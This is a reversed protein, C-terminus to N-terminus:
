YGMSKILMLIEQGRQGGWAQAARATILASQKALDYKGLHHLAQTRAYLLSPNSPERALFRQSQVFLEQWLASPPKQERAILTSNAPTNRVALVTNDGVYIIKWGNSWPLALSLMVTDSTAEAVVPVVLANVSYKELAAEWGPGANIITHTDSLVAPSLSRGDVFAKDMYGKFVIYGGWHVPAFFPGSVSARRAYQFAEDPYENNVWSAPVSPKLMSLARQQSLNVTLGIALIASLAASAIALKRALGRSDHASAIAWIAAAACIYVVFMVTRVYLFGMACLAACMGAFPLDVHGQRLSLAVLAVLAVLSFGVLFYFTPDGFYQLLFWPSRYEIVEQVVYMGSNQANGASRALDMAVTRTWGLFTDAASPNILSIAVGGAAAAMCKYSPAPGPIARMRGPGWRRAAHALAHAVLYVLMLADAVILGGHLMSWLAVLGYLVWVSSWGSSHQETKRLLYILLPLLVFSFAQPREFGGTWYIVSYLLPFSLAALGWARARAGEGRMLAFYMVLLPLVVLAGRFAAVSPEAGLAYAGYLVVQGLWQSQMGSAAARSLPKPTTYTFPDEQSPLAHHETIWRGTSLHFWLDNNSLPRLTLSFAYLFFLAAITAAVKALLRDKNDPQM